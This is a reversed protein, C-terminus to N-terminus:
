TFLSTIVGTVGGTRTLPVKHLKIEYANRMPTGNRDYFSRDESVGFVAWFGFVNRPFDGFSVLIQPIGNEALAKIGELSAQGGFESFLVGTITQTTAKGGVWQLQDPGGAVPVEVWPTETSHRTGTLSFGMSQFAFPGLMM